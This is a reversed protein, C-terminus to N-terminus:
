LMFRGAMTVPSRIVSRSNQSEGAPAGTIRRMSQLSPEGTWASAPSLV